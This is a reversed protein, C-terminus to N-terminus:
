RTFKKLSYNLAKSFDDIKKDVMKELKPLTDSDVTDVHVLSEFNFENKFENKTINPVVATLNKNMLDSTPIQALEFLKKTMDAPVVGTGKRMFSLNGDKGPVLVLEDGFRPEDTIAWEDRSTGTTGKAYYKTDYKVRSRYTKLWSSEYRDESIGKSKQYKEYEGAIATKALSMAKSPAANSKTVSLTKGAMELTATVHYQKPAIYSANGGGAGTGSGSGSGSTDSSGTGGVTVKRTQAAYADDAAKKVGNWKDIITQIQNGFGTLTNTFGNKLEAGTLYGAYNQAATQVRSWTGELKTAVGNSFATVVGNEHTILALESASLQRDLEEKWLIAQASADEWPQTLEDSLIGGYTDSLTVLEDYVIDANLMVDMISNQILTETDKLQEELQEIYREKSQTYAESEEDLAQSQADRSHDYYTDNLGEKAEMLQAELRRREAIDSAASSGSLSSIRRELEAIDKTQDKISERFDHLDREADLEEKKADILDEYAEIEKEIGTRIADIRAENLEVISDKADEYSQIADQQGGVLNSLSEQYQEESLENAKYQENLEDIEDQYMAAEAAAKEMQQTYLGMRTLAASSWNGNEDAVEEDELLSNVFDLEEGLRSIEDTIQEFYHLDIERIAEAWEITNIECEKIAVATENIENNYETWTDQDIAGANAALYEELAAKKQILIDKEDASNKKLDEYYKTSAKGGRAEAKDIEAQILDRENSLLALQNEYKSVLKEWGKDILDEADDDKGDGDKDNNEWNTGFENYTDGNAALNAMTQKKEYDKRLADVTTTKSNADDIVVNRAEQYEDWAESMTKDTLLADIFSDLGVIAASVLGIAKAKVSEATQVTSDNAAYDLESIATGYTQEALTGMAGTRQQTTINANQQTTNVNQEATNLNSAAKAEEDFKEKAKQANEAAELKIKAMDAATQMQKGISELQSEMLAKEAGDVLTISDETINLVKDWDDTSSMLELATKISVRGTDNYEEQAGKFTDMTGAVSEFASKLESLTDILGSIEDAVDPFMENNLSEFETNLAEVAKDAGVIKWRSLAEDVSMEGNEVEDVLKAFQNRVDDDAGELISAIKLNDAVKEGDVEKFLSDWTIAEGAEDIGIQLNKASSKLIKEGDAFVQLIGGITNIDPADSMAFFSKALEEASMGLTSVTTQLRQYSGDTADLADQILKQAKTQKKVSDLDSSSIEDLQEKLKKTDEDTSGFISKIIDSKGALGQAEQWKLTMAYYEDLFKNVEDDNGYQLENEAIINSMDGLVMNVGGIQKVLLDKEAELFKENNKTIDHESGYKELSDAYAQEFEAINEKTQNYRKIGEEIADKGSMGVSWFNDKKIVGDDWDVQYDEKGYSKSDWTKGIVDKAASLQEAKKNKLILEQLEIQRELYENQLRLNDLEEQEVFSLSDKSLLEEMREQTTELKENLSDLDSELDNIESNLEELKEKAEGATVWIEDIVKVLAVVAVVAGAAIAIFPLLPALVTWIAAALASFGATLLQTVPINVLEATTVGLLAAMKAGLATSALKTVLINKLSAAINAKTVEGSMIQAALEKWTTAIKAEQADKAAQDVVVGASQAATKANIADTMGDLKTSAEAINQDMDALDFQAAYHITDAKKQQLSDLSKELDAIEQSADAIHADRDKNMRTGGNVQRTIPEAEAKALKQKAEELKNQADTIEDDISTTDIEVLKLMDDQSDSEVAKALEERRAKIADVEKAFTDRDGILAELEPDVEPKPEAEDIQKRLIDVREQADRRKQATKKDGHQLDADTAKALDAEAKELQKKLAEVGEEAPKFFNSLLGHKKELFAFFGVLAINLPGVADVIKILQTALEVFSKVVDSDLTDSWMAQMANNFQDIKGQISDLYRENEKLASGASNASTEIVDEVTDFNQILASLM